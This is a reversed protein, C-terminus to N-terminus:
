QNKALEERIKKVEESTPISPLDEGIVGFREEFEDIKLLGGNEGIDGYQGGSAIVWENNDTDLYFARSVDEEPYECMIACTYNWSLYMARHEDFKPESDLVVEKFSSDKNKNFWSLIKKFM